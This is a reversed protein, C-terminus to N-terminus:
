IHILSLYVGEDQEKLLAVCGVPINNIIALYINGGKSIINEFPHSLVEEDIPEIVFYKNLWAINLAKFSAAYDDKYEVISIENDM